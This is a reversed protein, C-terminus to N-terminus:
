SMKAAGIGGFIISSLYLGSDLIEVLTCFPNMENINMHKHEFRCDRKRM